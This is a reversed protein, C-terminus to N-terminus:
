KESKCIEVHRNSLCILKKLTDIQQQQQVILAKQAAISAAQSEIQKQQEKVAEVVVPLMESYALSLFGKGDRSVLEPLVREVEQAIFGISRGDSFNMQPFESARWNYSVGRLLRIKDLPSTIPAINQKFRFDSPAVNTGRITGNVDLKYAPATTGIGVNNTASDIWFANQGTADNFIQFQGGTVTAISWKQSDNLALALGANDNSSVLARVVGAGNVHLPHTPTQSGIGIKGAVFTDGDLYAAWNTLGDTAKAYVGYNVVGPGRAEAHVGYAAFMNPGMVQSVGRVGFRRGDGSGQAIGLVGTREGATGSSRGLVATVIDNSSTVNALGQVGIGSGEFRGGTAFGPSTTNISKGSIGTSFVKESVTNEGHIASSGISDVVHLRYSPSSIGIGVRNGATSIQDVGVQLGDTPLQLPGTLTGGTVQVYQSADLGGLRTANSATESNLSKISYPASTVAQRPTLTTFTTGGAPKVGIELWRDGGNFLTAGFDLKVTFAGNLVSVGPRTLTALLGGDPPSMTCDADSSTCLRFEFDHATNAATGGAGLRGQYTLETTQPFASVVATLTLLALLHFKIKM